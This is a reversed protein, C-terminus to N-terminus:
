IVLWGVLRWKPVQSLVTKWCQKQGAGFHFWCPVFWGAVQLWGPMTRGGVHCSGQVLWVLDQWWCPMLFRAGVLCSLIVWMVTVWVLHSKSEMQESIEFVTKKRRNSWKQNYSKKQSLPCVIHIQPSILDYSLSIFTIFPVFVTMNNVFVHWM